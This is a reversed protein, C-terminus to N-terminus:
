RSKYDEILREIAEDTPVRIRYRELLEERSSKDLFM